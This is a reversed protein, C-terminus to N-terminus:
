RYFGEDGGGGVPPASPAQGPPRYPLYGQAPAPSSSAGPPAPPAHAPQQPPYGHGVQPPPQSYPDSPPQQHTPPSSIQEYPNQQGPPPGQLPAGQQPPYGPPAQSPPYEYGQPASPAGQPQSPGAFSHRNDVPSDYHATALEQPAYSQPRGGIPVRGQPLSYPDSPPGPQPTQQQPRQEGAPPVMFFAPNAGVPPYQPASGQPPAGAGYGYQQPPPSSPPYGTYNSPPPANYGYPPRSGYSPQPPQSMSAELLSEYDRRAKIFKENLQTFDDKKQSYKGILEILKPRIALTSHYLETIEENDRGDGGGAQTNTSLLALLKEVNRIQAFVEAETQAEKELEERTPDQLKEVYNLPFIGTNGRLSGKWWDKYVSELVAIIDGKKFQLEGPESPQFDFLARVRSVTAATTGPQVPQPAPAAQSSSGANSEQPANAKAASPTAGKSEKISMALAMQLEEEEKQRDSDSIQTKQPKSPARLNPNQTKLKMYAGEMIGLDPDRSFMESWEGMRELIKAKVAQHTNRDNALRLMADTFSRSALEKHMQIGCNQSLANALELTYLQVNANRHALRKIMAAVADKAGTDSSGVKDCVDLIYEWNESTLNEDTAKVVVDDFINSQARFM